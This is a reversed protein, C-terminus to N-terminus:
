ITTKSAIKNALMHDPLSAEAERNGKKASMKCEIHRHRARAMYPFLFSMPVANM